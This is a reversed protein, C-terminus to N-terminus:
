KVYRTVDELLYVENCFRTGEIIDNFSANEQMVTDYTKWFRAVYEQVSSSPPVSIAKAEELNDVLCRFVKFPTGFGFVKHVQRLTPRKEFVFLKGIKARIVSNRKYTVHFLDTPNKAICSSMSGDELIRVVKFAQKM